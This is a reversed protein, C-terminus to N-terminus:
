ADGFVTFGGDLVLESGSAYAADLLYAVAHAAEEPEAGRRLPIQKFRRELLGEPLATRVRETMTPGLALTNVRIGHPALEVALARTLAHIAGKAAAYASTGGVGSLAHITGLNVVSGGRGRDRLSAAFAQTMLFVAEVDVELLRRLLDRSTELFPAYEVIGANNILVDAGGLETEALAIVDAVSEPATLDAVHAVVTHGEAALANRVSALPEEDVDVLLLAGSCTALESAIAQGLGRAAGTVVVVREAAAREPPNANAM